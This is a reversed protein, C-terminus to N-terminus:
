KKTTECTIVSTITMPLKITRPTDKGAELEMEGSIKQTITGVQLLSNKKNISINGNIEGNLQVNAHLGMIELPDKQTDVAITSQVEIDLLDDKDQLLTFKNTISMPFVMNVDANNEWSDGVKSNEPPCNNLNQQIMMKINEDSFSKRLTETLAQKQEATVLSNDIIGNIIDDLGKVGIVKGKNDIKITFSKGLIGSYISSLPNNNDKQNSDYMVTKGASDVLIKIADYNYSITVNKDKDVDLITILYDMATKQKTIMEQGNVVIITEQDNVIHSNYREGKEVSLPFAFVKGCGLAAFLMMSACLIMVFKRLNM